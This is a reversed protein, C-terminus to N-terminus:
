RAAPSSRRARARDFVTSVAQGTSAGILAGAITDGPYHVGTHVRSYAVASALFQIAIALWPNDRSIATAFAFASASHGSPFSTSSPMRVRRVDPVGAGARDPRRRESLSKVGLNVLASTVGIALVGRSAARRGSPGTLALGAAIALWLRSKNASNSLRRMANDLAPAPVGAIAAYVAKDIAGLQHLVEALQQRAPGGLRSIDDAIRDAVAEAVSEGAPVTGAAERAAADRAGTEHAASDRATARAHQSGAADNTM